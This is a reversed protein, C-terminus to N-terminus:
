RQLTAGSVEHLNKGDACRLLSQSDKFDASIILNTRKTDAIHFLRRAVPNPHTVARSRFLMRYKSAM